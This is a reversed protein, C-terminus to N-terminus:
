RSVLQLFEKRLEPNSFFAGRTNHDSQTDIVPTELLEELKQAIEDELSAVEAEGHIHEAINDNAHFRSGTGRIRERILASISKHGAKSTTM